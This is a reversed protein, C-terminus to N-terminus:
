TVSGGGVVVESASVFFLVALGRAALTRNGTTASGDLRMTVGSGQTITRSSAGAYLLIIDGAAFVSNNITVDGTMQITKNASAVTLTGTTESSAQARLSATGGNITPTSITPSTLTKNTLTQTASLDVVDVGGRQLGGTFNSAGSHTNAGNLLPVTAGSTGITLGLNTRATTVNGLDSLNNSAILLGTAAITPNGAVGNGDTVTINAGATITRGTFTDAATQTLLGNTNYAALATLTADRPQFDGSGLSSVIQWNTGDYILLYIGGNVIDGAVLAGGDPTVISRAGLGDVNFTAAGSNTHNAKLAFVYGAAYAAFAHAVPNTATYANSSGGYTVTGGVQDLWAAWRAMMARASDNLTGPLQGETYNISADASANSAATTSWSYVTM